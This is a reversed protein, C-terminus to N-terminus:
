GILPGLLKGFNMGAKIEFEIKSKENENILPGVTVPPNQGGGPSSYKFIKCVAEWPGRFWPRVIQIVDKGLSQLYWSTFFGM